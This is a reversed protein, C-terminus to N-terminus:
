RFFHTEAVTWIDGYSLQSQFYNEKFRLGSPNFTGVTFDADFHASPGPNSAEGIRIMGLILFTIVRWRCSLGKYARLCRM